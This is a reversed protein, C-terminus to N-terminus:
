LPWLSTLRWPKIAEEERWWLPLWSIKDCEVEDRSEWTSSVMSPPPTPPMAVIADENDVSSFRKRGFEKAATPDMLCCDGVVAPISNKFWEKLPIMNVYLDYMNQIIYHNYWTMIFLRLAKKKLHTGFIYNQNQPSFKERQGGKKRVGLELSPQFMLWLRLFWKRSRM